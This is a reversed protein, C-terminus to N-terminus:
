LRPPPPEPPAPRLSHTITEALVVPRESEPRVAPERAPVLGLTGFLSTVVSTSVDSASGISCQNSGPAARRHMPCMAHDGHSCACELLTEGSGSWLVTPVLTLTTVQCLLWAVAIRGVARRLRTM